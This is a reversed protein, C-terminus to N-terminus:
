LEILCGAFSAVINSVFSTSTYSEGSDKTTSNQSELAFTMILLTAAVLTAICLFVVVIVFFLNCKQTGSEYRKSDDEMMSVKSYGKSAPRKMGRFRRNGGM